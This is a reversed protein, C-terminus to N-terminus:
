RFGFNCDLNVTLGVVVGALHGFVFVSVVEQLLVAQDIIVPFDVTPDVALQFLLRFLDLILQDCKQAGAGHELRKFRVQRNLHSLGDLKPIILLLSDVVELLHTLVAFGNRQQVMCGAYTFSDCCCRIGLCHASARQKQDVGQLQCRLCFLSEGLDPRFRSQSLVGSTLLIHGLRDNKGCHLADRLIQFLERRHIKVVQNYVFAVMRCGVGVLLNEGVEVRLENQTQGGSRFAAIAFIHQLQELVNGM